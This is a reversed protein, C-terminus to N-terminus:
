PSTTIARRLPVSSGAPRRSLSRDKRCNGHLSPTPILRRGARATITKDYFVCAIPTPLESLTILGCIAITYVRICSFGFADTVAIAVKFEGKTTPTGSLLGDRTLTLGPPLQGAVVAFTYPSTGGRATLMIPGYTKGTTGDPLTREEITLLDCCITVSADDLTVAAQSLLRGSVNARRNVTINGMALVNGLFVSKEGFTASGAIQWFVRSDKAGNTTRVISGPETTLSSTRFIWPQDPDDGPELTLPLPGSLMPSSLCYVGPGLSRGSLEGSITICPRRDLEGYTRANEEQAQRALADNTRVEGIVFKLPDGTVSGASAGVNGAIITPGSNVVSTRGLVAYSAASSGLSPVEAFAPSLAAFFLSILLSSRM